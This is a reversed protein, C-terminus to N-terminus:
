SRASNRCPTAYEQRMENAIKLCIESKGVGGLGTIIFVKQELKESRMADKVRELLKTRGTFLTNIRRPVKWHVHAISSQAHPSEEREQSNFISQSGNPLEDLSHNRSRWYIEERLRRLACEKGEGYLPPIQIDFLGLLSYAEDEERKTQRNEAWSLRELISFRSLAAGQLAQVPISTIQHLERELSKKNGLLQGELSFFELM